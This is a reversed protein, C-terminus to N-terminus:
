AAGFDLRPDTRRIIDSVSEQNFGKFGQDRQINEIHSGIVGDQRYTNFQQSDIVRSKELNELRTALIKWREGQSFAQKLHDFESFPPLMLVQERELDRQLDRFSFRAALHHLGAELISEGHLACWLGVTGPEPFSKLDVKEFNLELEEPNLDVDAFVVLRCVPQELVQAGWGAESGAYFKERYQFGFTKLIELLAPFAERSSRFTHHDHNAWGLGLADQRMKQIRGARNRLQWYKREAAFALWAALDQDSDSVLSSALDMTYKLGQDLKDFERRRNFWREYLRMSLDIFDRPMDSPEFGTEARREV